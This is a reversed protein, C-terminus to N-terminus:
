CNSKTTAYWITIHFSKCENKEEKLIGIYTKM